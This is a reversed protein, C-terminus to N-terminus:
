MTNHSKMTSKLAFHERATKNLSHSVPQVSCMFFRFRSLLFVCLKILLKENRM